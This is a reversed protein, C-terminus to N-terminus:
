HLPTRAHTLSHHTVQPLAIPDIGHLLEIRPSSTNTRLADWVDVGDVGTPQGGSLAISTAHWDTIHILGHWVYHHRPPLLPSHIFSSSRVGGEFFSGKWGSVLHHPTHPPYRSTHPPHPPTRSSNSPLVHSSMTNPSLAFNFNHM